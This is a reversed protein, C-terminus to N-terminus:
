GMGAIEKEVDALTKELVKVMVRAAYAPDSDLPKLRAGEWEMTDRNEYGYAISNYLFRFISERDYNAQGKLQLLRILFNRHLLALERRAGEPEELREILINYGFTTGPRLGFDKIFLLLTQMTILNATPLHREIALIATKVALPGRTTGVERIIDRHRTALFRRLVANYQEVMEPTPETPSPPAAELITSLELLPSRIASAMGEILPHFELTDVGPQELFCGLAQYGAMTDRNDHPQLFLRGIVREGQSQLIRGLAETIQRLQPAEAPTANQALQTWNRVMALPELALLTTISTLDM